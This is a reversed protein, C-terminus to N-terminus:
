ILEDSTFNTINLKKDIDKSYKMFRSKYKNEDLFDEPTIEDKTLLFDRLYHILVSHADKQKM